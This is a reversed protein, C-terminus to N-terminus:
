EDMVRDDQVSGFASHLVQLVKCNLGPAYHVGGLDGAPCGIRAAM